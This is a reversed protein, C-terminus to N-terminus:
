YILKDLNYKDWGLSLEEIYRNYKKDFSHCTSTILSFCKENELINQSFRESLILTVNSTLKNLFDIKPLNLIQPFLDDFEFDLIKKIIGIFYQENELIYSISDKNEETNEQEPPNTNEQENKNLM